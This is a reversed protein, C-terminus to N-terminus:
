EACFVLEHPGRVDLFCEASGLLGECGGGSDGIEVEVFGSAKAGVGATLSEPEYQLARMWAPELNRESASDLYAMMSNSSRATDHAMVM